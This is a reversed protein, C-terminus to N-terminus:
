MWSGDNRAATTPETETPELADPAGRFAATIVASIPDADQPSERRIVMGRITEDLDDAITM